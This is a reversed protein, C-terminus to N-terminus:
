TDSAEVGLQSHQDRSVLRGLIARHCQIYTLSLLNAPPQTLPGGRACAGFYSLPPEWPGSVCMLAFNHLSKDILNKDGDMKLEAPWENPDYDRTEKDGDDGGHGNGKRDRASLPTGPVPRCFSARITPSLKEFIRRREQEWDFDGREQNKRPSLRKAHPTFKEYLPHDPRPLIFARGKIRYQDGTPAFWWAIEVKDSNGTLQQAKPGRVLRAISRALTSVNAENKSSWPGSIPTAM